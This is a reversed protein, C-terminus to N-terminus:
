QNDKIFAITKEIIEKHKLEHGLGETLHLKANKWVAALKVAETYLCERDSKDHIILADTSLKKGFGVISFFSLKHKLEMEFQEKILTLAKASLSLHKAYHNFFEGVNSPTALLVIKQIASAPNQHLYFAVAFCGLSHSIICTIAPKTKLFEAIVSEYIALNMIKGSSNGHAPADLAYVTFGSEVLPQLYNKWRFTHSAWGHVLLVCRSGAGWKYTQIQNGGISVVADRAPNLFEHHYPKLKTQLPTCFLQFGDKRLKKPNLNALVNFYFGMAKALIKLLLKM